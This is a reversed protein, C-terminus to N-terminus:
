CAAGRVTRAGTEPPRRWPVQGGRADFVRLDPFGVRTHAFLPGDAAFTVPAPATPECTACTASAARASTPARQSRCGRGSALLLLSLAARRM